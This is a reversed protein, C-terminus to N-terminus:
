RGDFKPSRKESFAIIGELFDRTKGAIGQLHAEESLQDALTNDMSRRMAQKLLTYTQTPGNALYAARDQVTQAFDDDDVCEWIMGWDAAREAEIKESFLAAGMARAFGIQRPLWFSGGADPILGIKAFAQTFYASKCAIVVDAALALNAGAGVAAGNVASITPIKSEYIALLMPEYEERLTRELDIDALHRQDGLDQGACFGRGEGTMILVRADDQARDVAHTIETRMQGNLSNMKEPRNLKITAVEDAVTYHITQYDM